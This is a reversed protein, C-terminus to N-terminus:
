QTSEYTDAGRYWQHFLHTVVRYMAEPGVDVRVMECSNARPPNESKNKRNVRM